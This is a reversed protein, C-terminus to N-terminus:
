KLENVQGMFLITGSLRERIVFLFPRDVTFSPPASTVGVGVVTAAAAETGEENVEVFAKQLVRTLFLSTPDVDAMGSFDARGPEFAIGMGLARLDDVLSRSYDMKFRPLSLVVKVEQFSASLERWTSPTLGALVAAPTSGEAPLLITMAWAGNGYLLDAATFGNGQALRIPQEDQSMTPVDHSGGAASRFPRPTTREPDFPLRWKGKFYIANVLFAIEEDAISELLKPIRSRTKENVWGNITGLTAPAQLDLTTAEAAFSERAAALFEARVPFGQDLWVSNAVLVESSKDLTTFLDMLGRYGANIETQSVGPVRLAEQMAELTTGRAGNMTMGLAMSASMPSLFANADLPLTRSAERFLAFSFDNAADILRSEAASLPRPLAELLPEPATPNSASGCGAAFAFMLFWPANSM